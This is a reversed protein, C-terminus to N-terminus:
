HQRGHRAVVTSYPAPGADASLVVGGVISHLSRLLSAVAAAAMTQAAKGFGFVWVRRERAMSLADLARATLEGPAAAAVADDYLEILLNASIRHDAQNLLDRSRRELTK